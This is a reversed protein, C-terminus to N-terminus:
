WQGKRSKRQSNKNKSKYTPLQMDCNGCVLRLNDLRWDKCKGNIHDLVLPVPQGMWEKIKCIECQNGRMRLLLKKSATQNGTTRGSENAKKIKITWNHEICCETCCFTRKTDNGCNLCPSPEKRKSSFTGACSPNCFTNKRKDYDLPANCKKCLKPNEEYSKKLIERQEKTVKRRDKLMEATLKVHQTWVSVSSKSVGLKKAITLISDGNKRMRVAQLREEEKRKM